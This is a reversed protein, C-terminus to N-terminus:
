ALLDSTGGASGADTPSPTGGDRQGDSSRQPVESKSAHRHEDAIAPHDSENTVAEPGSSKENVVDPDATPSVTPAQGTEGRLVGHASSAGPATLPADCDIETAFPAQNKPVLRHVGDHCRVIVSDPDDNAPEEPLHVVPAAVGEICASPPKGYFYVAVSRGDPSLMEIADNPGNQIWGNPLTGSWDCAQAFATCIVVFGSAPLRVQAVELRRYPPCNSQGGNRLVLTGLGCDGLTAGVAWTGIAQLELFEEDDVGPDDYNLKSLVIFCGADYGVTADRAAGESSDGRLGNSLPPVAGADEVSVGAVGGTKEVTEPGVTEPGVTEPGVTETSALAVSVLSARTFPAASGFLALFTVVFLRLSTVRDKERGAEDATADRRAEFGSAARQGLLTFRGEICQRCCQRIARRTPSDVSM